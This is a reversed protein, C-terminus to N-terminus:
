KRPLPELTLRLTKLSFEKKKLDLVACFQVSRKLLNVFLIEVRSSKRLTQTRTESQINVTTVFLSLDGEGLKATVSLNLDGEVLGLTIQDKKDRSFKSFNIQAKKSFKSLTLQAKKDSSFWNIRSM